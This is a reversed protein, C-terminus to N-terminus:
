ALVTRQRIAAPMLEECMHIYWHYTKWGHQRRDAFRPHRVLAAQQCAGAYRADEQVDRDRRVELKCTRVNRLIYRPM